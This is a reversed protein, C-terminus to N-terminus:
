KKSKNFFRSFFGRPKPEFFLATSKCHGFLSDLRNFGVYRPQPNGQIPDIPNNPSHCYDGRLHRCDKCLIM